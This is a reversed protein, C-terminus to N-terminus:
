YRLAPAPSATQSACSMPPTPRSAETSFPICRVPRDRLVLRCAPHIAYMPRAHSVGRLEDM